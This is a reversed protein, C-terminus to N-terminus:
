FMGEVYKNMEEVVYFFVWWLLEKIFYVGGVDIEYEVISIIGFDLDILVFVYM